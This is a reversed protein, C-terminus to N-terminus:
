ELCKLIIALADGNNDAISVLRFSYATPACLILYYLDYFTDWDMFPLPVVLNEKRNITEVILPELSDYLYSM